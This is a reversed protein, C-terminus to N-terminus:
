EAAPKKRRQLVVEGYRVPGDLRGSAVRSKRYNLQFEDMPQADSTM